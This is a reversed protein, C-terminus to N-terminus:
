AFLHQQQRINDMWQGAFVAHHRQLRACFGMVGDRWVISEQDIPLGGDQRFSAPYYNGDISSHLFTMDPDRMMDGNQEYYHAVSYIRGEEVDALSEVHVAMYTGRDFKVANGPPKDKLDATLKDLVRKAERNVKRM